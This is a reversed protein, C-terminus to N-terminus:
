QRFKESLALNVRFITQGRVESFLHNALVKWPHFNLDTLNRIWSIKLSLIKADVDVDKLRGDRYEGILSENRARRSYPFLATSPVSPQEGESM